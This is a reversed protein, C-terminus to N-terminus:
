LAMCCIYNRCYVAYRVTHRYINYYGITLLRQRDLKKM